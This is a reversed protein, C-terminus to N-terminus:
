TPRFFMAGLGRVADDDSGIMRNGIETFSGLNLHFSKAAKSSADKVLEDASNTPPTVSAEDTAKPQTTTEQTANISKGSADKGEVANSVIDGSDSTKTTSQEPMISDSSNTSVKSSGINYTVAENYAREFANAVDSSVQGAPINGHMLERDNMMTKPNLMNGAEIDSGDAM